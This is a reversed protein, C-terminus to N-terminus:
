TIYLASTFNLFASEDYYILILEEKYDTVLEFFYVWFFVIPTVGMPLVRTKVLRKSEDSTKTTKSPQSYM